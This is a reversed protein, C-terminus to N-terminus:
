GLQADLGPISRRRRVSATLPRKAIIRLRTTGTHYFGSVIEWGEEGWANLLAEFEERKPESRIVGGFDEVRYEWLPYESGAM